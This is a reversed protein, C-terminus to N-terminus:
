LDTLEKTQKKPWSYPEWREKSETVQQRTHTISTQLVIHSRRPKECKANLNITSPVATFYSYKAETSKKETKTM